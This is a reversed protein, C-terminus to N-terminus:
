WFEKNKRKLVANCQNLQFAYYWIFDLNPANAKIEESFPNEVKYVGRLTLIQKRSQFNYSMIKWFEEYNEFSEFNRFFIGFNEIQKWFKWFWLPAAVSMLPAAAEKSALEFTKM